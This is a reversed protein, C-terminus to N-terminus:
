WFCEVKQGESEQCQTQETNEKWYWLLKSESERTSKLITKMTTSKGMKKLLM